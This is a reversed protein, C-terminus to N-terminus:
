AVYGLGRLHEKIIEEQEPTLDVQERSERPEVATYRIPLKSFFDDEFAETLVKGDMDDPIPTGLAALITPALDVLEAGQLQHGRRIGPGMAMVIGDMRHGGSRDFSPELWSRSSFQYLAFGNYRMDDPLFVIDPGDEMHEGQYIEERRYVRLAIPQGTRPHRLRKLQEVLDDVVKEYEAGPAVIGHPERGRLNVYLQGYNGLAYARTRSWDVDAYSLFVRRLLSFAGAKNKRLTQAVQPGRGMKMSLKYMSSPTLGTGYILRKASTAVNRNLRMFGQRLLWANAHIYQELRGSGHDSMIIAITDDGVSDLLEALCSDMSQYCQKLGQRLADSADPVYAPHNEDMFRWLWHMAVDTEKFVTMFFDWEHRGMLYRIAEMTMGTLSELADMLSAERGLPHATGKPAITFSPVANQLDQALEPPYTYDTADPPTMMGTVMFGNVAEPPYTAPVSFVGVKRGAKSLIHWLSDGDRFSANIPVGYYDERGRRIFDFIGHKGPNKGTMFSSWAPGTLPPIVSELRGWTGEALIRAFTPLAGEEAWPQILDLTAGDLGIVIVRPTPENGLTKSTM